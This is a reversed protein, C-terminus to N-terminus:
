VVSWDRLIKFSYSARIFPCMEHLLLGRRDPSNLKMKKVQFKLLSNHSLFPGNKLCGYWGLYFQSGDTDYSSLGLVETTTTM